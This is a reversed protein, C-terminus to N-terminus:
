RALNEQIYEVTKKEVRVHKNSTCTEPATFSVVSSANSYEQQCKPITNSAMNILNDRSIYHTKTQGDRDVCNVGNQCVYNNSILTVRDTFETKNFVFNDGELKITGNKFNSNHWTYANAYRRISNNFTLQAGDDSITEFHVKISILNILGVTIPKKM